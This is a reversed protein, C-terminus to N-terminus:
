KNEGLLGSYVLYYHGDIGTYGAGGGERHDIRVLTDGHPLRVMRRADAPKEVTHPVDTDVVTAFLGCTLVIVSDGAKWDIADHLM